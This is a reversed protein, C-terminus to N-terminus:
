TTKTADTFPTLRSSLDRSKLSHASRVAFRLIGEFCIVKTMLSFYRKVEFSKMPLSTSQTSELDQIYASGISDLISTVALSGGHYSVRVALPRSLASGRPEARDRNFSSPFSFSFPVALAM